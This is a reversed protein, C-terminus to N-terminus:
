FDTKQKQRAQLTPSPKVKLLLSRFFKLQQWIENVGNKIEAIDELYINGTSNVRVAIQNINNSVSNLKNRFDRVTDDTIKIIQGGFIMMRVFDSKTKYGSNKFKAELIEAEEDSLRIQLLNKKRYRDNM